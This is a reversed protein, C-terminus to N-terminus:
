GLNLLVRHRVPMEGAGRSLALAHYHTGYGLFCALQITIFDGPMNHSVKTAWNCNSSAALIRTSPFGPNSSGLGLGKPQPLRTRAGHNHWGYVSWYEELKPQAARLARACYSRHLRGRVFTRPPRSARYHRRPRQPLTDARPELGAADPAVPSSRELETRGAADRPGEVEGNTAGSSCEHSGSTLLEICRHPHWIRPQCIQFNRSCPLRLAGNLNVQFPRTHPKPNFCCKLAPEVDDRKAEWTRALVQITEYLERGKSQSPPQKEGIVVVEVDQGIQRALTDIDSNLLGSLALTHQRFSDRMSVIARANIAANDLGRVFPAPM